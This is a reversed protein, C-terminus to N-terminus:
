SVAPFMYKLFDPFVARWHMENHQGKEYTKVVIKDEPYNITSLNKPMRLAGELLYLELQDNQNEGNYIYVFPYNGGFDKEKLYKQWTADDFLSFAPSLAGITGFKDPHEMGIYFSEIGGSSSGCIANHAPDTYVHYNEEIFPVVTGCVFDSFYAGHGDDYSEETSKGINPTLESDRYSPGNDIGVVIVKNESQSMMAECAEAVGWSGTSTASPDFLNQGDTMYIVSYPEESKEDYDDPTWIYVDKTRSEYPFTEWRVDPKKIENGYTYPMFRYSSINWGSVYDNFSLEITSDDNGYTLIVRDYKESDGSCSFLTADDDSSIKKMKVTTSQDSGSLLFTATMEDHAFEDRVYLTHDEGEAACSALTVIMLLCLIIAFFQKM